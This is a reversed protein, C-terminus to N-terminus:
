IVNLQIITTCTINIKVNRIKKCKLDRVIFPIFCLNYVWIIDHISIHEAYLLCQVNIRTISLTNNRESM